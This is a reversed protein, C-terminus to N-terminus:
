LLILQLVPGPQEPSKDVQAEFLELFKILVLLKNGHEVTRVSFFGKRM